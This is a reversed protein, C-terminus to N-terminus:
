TLVQFDSYHGDQKGKTGWGMEVPHEFDVLLGVEPLVVLIM